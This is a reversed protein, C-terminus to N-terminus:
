PTATLLKVVAMVATTIPGSMEACTKAAEILGESCATIKSIKPPDEVAAEALNKLKESVAKKQNETLDRHDILKKVQKNVTDLSKRLKAKAKKAANFSDRVNDNITINGKITGGANNVTLNNTVNTDGKRLEITWKKANIVTTHHTASVGDQLLPGWESSFATNVKGLMALVTGLESSNVIPEFEGIAERIEVQPYNAWEKRFVWKEAAALYSRLGHVNQGVQFKKQGILRLTKKLGEYEAHMRLIIQRLTRIQADNSDASRGLFWVGVDRGERQLWRHSLHVGLIKCGEVSPLGEIDPHNFGRCYEILVVPNGATVWWDQRVSGDHPHGTSSRLYGDAAIKDGIFQLDFVKGYDSDPADFRIKLSLTREVLHILRTLSQQKSDIGGKLSFAIEFRGLVGNSFFRRSPCRAVALHNLGFIKDHFHDLRLARDATCYKDEEPLQAAGGRYREKAVGFHRLFEPKDSDLLPFFPSDLKGTESGLFSRVDTIPFQAKILM